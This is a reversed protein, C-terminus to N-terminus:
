RRKRIVVIAVVIALIGLSVSLLIPIPIIPREIRQLVYSAWTGTNYEMLAEISELAGDDKSWLVVTEVVADNDLTVYRYGWTSETELLYFVHEGIQSQNFSKGYATLVVTLQSWNGIPMVVALPFHNKSSPPDYWDEIESDNGSWYGRATLLPLGGLTPSIEPPEDVLLYLEGTRNQSHSGRIQVEYDLRTGNEVAWRLNHKQPRINVFVTDSTSNGVANSVIITFNHVGIDYVAGRVHFEIGRHDWTDFYEHTGNDLIEYRSPFRDEPYWYLFFGGISWEVSFDPISNITPIGDYEWLGPTQDRVTIGPTHVLYDGSGSYDSYYNGSWNNNASAGEFDYANYYSEGNWGLHNGTVMNAVADRGLYIGNQNNSYVTNNRILVGQINTLAIGGLANCGYIRNSDVINGYPAAYRNKFHIGYGMGHIICDLISTHTSNDLLLGNEAYGFIINNRITCNDSDEILISAAGNSDFSCNEVVGHELSSFSISNLECDLIVFHVTTGSISISIGDYTLISLGEIIFPDIATGSGPWGQTTFNDNHNIEIPAQQASVHLPETDMTITLCTASLSLPNTISMLVVFMAFGALRTKM